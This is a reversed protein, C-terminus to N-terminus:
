SPTRYGWSLAAGAGILGRAPSQSVIALTGSLPASKASCRRGPAASTRLVGHVLIPEINGHPLEQLLDAYCRLALYLTDDAFARRCAAAPELYPHHEGRLPSIEVM